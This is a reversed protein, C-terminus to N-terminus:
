KGGKVFATDLNLRLYSHFFEDISGDELLSDLRDCATGYLELRDLSKPIESLSLLCTTNTVSSIDAVVCTFASWAM